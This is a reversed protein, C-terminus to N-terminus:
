SSCNASAALIDVGVWGTGATLAIRRRKASASEACATFVGTQASNDALRAQGNSAYSVYDAVAGGALLAGSGPLADQVRLVQDDADLAGADDADVFIIWGRRWDGVAAEAACTAGDVSRCMTVRTNRKVAESRSYNLAALMQDAATSVAADDIFGRLMPLGVSTVVAVIAITALLESLSFGDSSGPRIQHKAFKEM